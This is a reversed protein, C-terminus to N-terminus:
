RTYVWRVISNNPPSVINVGLAYNGNITYTWGDPAVRSLYNISTIYFLVPTQWYIEYQIVCCKTLLDFVTTYHDTLNIGEFKVETGNHEGYDVILTVNSVSEPFNMRNPDTAWSYEDLNEQNLIISSTIVTAIVLVLGVSIIRISIKKM